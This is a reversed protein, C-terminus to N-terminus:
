ACSFMYVRMCHAASMLVDVRVRARKLAPRRVKVKEPGILPVETAGGYDQMRESLEFGVDYDQL